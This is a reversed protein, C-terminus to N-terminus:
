RDLVVEATTATVVQWPSCVLGFTEMYGTDCGIELSRTYEVTVATVDLEYGHTEFVKATHPDPTSTVSYLSRVFGM